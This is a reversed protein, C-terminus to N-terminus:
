WSAAFRRGARAVHRSTTTMAVLVRCTCRRSLRKPANHDRTIVAGATRDAVLGRAFRWCGSGVPYACGGYDVGQDIRSASVQAHAFPNAYGAASVLRSSCGGGTYSVFSSTGGGQYSHADAIV